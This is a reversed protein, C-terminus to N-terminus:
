KGYESARDKEATKDFMSIYDGANGFTALLGEEKDNDVPDQTSTAM